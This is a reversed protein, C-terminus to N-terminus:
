HIGILKNNSTGFYVHKDFVTPSYVWAGPVRFRFLRTGDSVKLAYLHGDESGMYVVESTCSPSATVPGRTRHHWVKDGTGADLAYIKKDKSGFILKGDVLVPSSFIEGGVDSEWVKERTDLRLATVKGRQGAVYIVGDAVVPTALISSLLKVKFVREGTSKKLVEVTGDTCGAVVHDGEIAVSAGVGDSVETEWIVGGNAASVCRVTADLSGFYVRNDLCLPSGTIEENTQHTWLKKGNSRDLAYLAGDDAGFILKDGYVAPAARVASNTEFRWTPQGDELRHAQVLGSDCAAYLAGAAIAPAARVDDPYVMSFTTHNQERMPETAIVGTRGPGGHFNWTQEDGSPTPEDPSPTTAPTPTGSPEVDVSIGGALELSNFFENEFVSSFDTSSLNRAGALSWVRLLRDLEGTPNDALWGGARSAGFFSFGQLRAELESLEMENERAMAANALGPEARLQEILGFWGKALKVLHSKEVRPASRGDLIQESAVWVYVLPKAKSTGAFPKLGSGALQPQSLSGADVQGENLWELIQEDSQAEVFRYTVSQDEQSRARALFESVPGPVYAMTRQSPSGPRAVLGTDGESQGIPFLLRGAKFRPYARALDDTSSVVLDLRGAALEVWSREEDYEVLEIKLESLNPFQRLAAFPLRAARPPVAVRITPPGDWANPGDVPQAPGVYLIALVVLGM